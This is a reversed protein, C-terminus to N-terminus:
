FIKLLIVFIGGIFIMSQTEGKHLGQHHGVWM